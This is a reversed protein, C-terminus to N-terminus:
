PLSLCSCLVSSCRLSSFLLLSVLFFSFNLFVLPCFLFHLGSLFNYSHLRLLTYLVFSFISSYVHLVFPCFCVLLLPLLLGVWPFFVVRVVVSSISHISCIWTLLFKINTVFLFNYALEVPLFLLLNTAPLFNM